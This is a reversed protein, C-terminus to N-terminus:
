STELKSVIRSNVEYYYFLLFMIVTLWWMLTGVFLHLIKLEAPLNFLVTAAGVGIQIVLVLGLIVTSWYLKGNGTKTKWALRISAVILIAAFLAIIRHIMHVLPLKSNVFISGSQCLPWQDCAGSAGTTTTYSGSLLIAFVLTITTILLWKHERFIIAGSNSGYIIVFFILTFLGLLIEALALHVTVLNGALETLVTIGGLGAQAIVLIFGSLSLYLLLKEDRYRIWVVILIVFVLTAVFSAIVRHSYEILTEFKYPPIIEGHCLPWDPCGLGSETVRVVGGWIMLFFISVM